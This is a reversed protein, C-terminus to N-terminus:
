SRTAGLGLEDLMRPGASYIAADAGVQERRVWNKDLLTALSERAANVRVDYKRVVEMVTLRGYDPNSAFFVLLQEYLKPEDSTPM